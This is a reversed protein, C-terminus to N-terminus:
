MMSRELWDGELHSALKQIPAKGQKTADYKDPLLISMKKKKGKKRAGFFDFSFKLTVIM